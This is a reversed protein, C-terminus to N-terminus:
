RSGADVNCVVGTLLFLFYYCTDVAILRFDILISVQGILHTTLFGGHSIGVVAVKSADILKESIVYDIATLCDQVDQKLYTLFKPGFDHVFASFGLLQLVHRLDLKELFRNYLRRM